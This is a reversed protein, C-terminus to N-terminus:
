GDFGSWQATVVCALRAPEAPLQNLAPKAYVRVPGLRTGKGFAQRVAEALALVAGIGGGPRGCVTVVALGREQTPGDDGIGYNLPVNPVWSAELWLGSDPPTFNVGPFAVPVGQAQAFSALMTAFANYAESNM